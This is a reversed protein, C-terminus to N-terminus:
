EQTKIYIHLMSICNGFLLIYPFVKYGTTIFGNSNFLCSFDTFYFYTTLTGLGYILSIFLFVFLLDSHFLFLNSFSVMIM